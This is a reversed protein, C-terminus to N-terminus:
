SHRVRRMRRQDCQFHQCGFRVSEDHEDYFTFRSSCGFNVIAASRAPLFEGPLPIRNPPRSKDHDIFRETNLRKNEDGRMFDMLTGLTQANMLDLWHLCWCTEPGGTKLPVPYRYAGASNGELPYDAATLTAMIQEAYEPLLFCGSWEQASIARGPKKSCM